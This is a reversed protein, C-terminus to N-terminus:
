VMEEPILPLPRGFAEAAAFDHPLLFGARASPCALANARAIQGWVRAATGLDFADPPAGDPLWHAMVRRRLDEVDRQRDLYVGAESDWFFSRGNLNASAVIADADDFISVKAHVYVLPAGCLRDRPGGDKPAPDTDCDGDAPAARPQAPSGVFLRPGFARRITRLARAQTFEGYRADLGRNRKFAVDEPAAPLILIMSLKPEARARHALDRAFRFDRFYQSELYVLQKVRATLVSHASRIAWSGREPGFHFLNNPRKHSVTTLLHRYTAVPGRGKTAALFTELHAQAEAVVPGDVILQLDHWTQPGARRHEPTDYRRENLDLGGIYLLRRDIVALKQHHLVPYLRPVSLLRTTVRGDPQHRLYIDIGPMDRLAARRQDPSLGNAWAVIAALRRRVYPLILLRLGAGTQAAHRAAVVHLVGVGQGAVERAACFRRLSRTAARHMKPRAIPDVDSIVFHVAVRQRLVHVLLDFWTDGVARGADSRLATDLDFVMFSAWIETKAELFALELAPYAEAATLHVRVSSIPSTHQM